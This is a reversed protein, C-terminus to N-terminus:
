KDLETIPDFVTCSRQITVIPPPFTTMSLLLLVSKPLSTLAFIALQGIKNVKPTIKAMCKLNSCVYLQLNCIIHLSINYRSHIYTCRCTCCIQTYLSYGFRYVWISYMYAPLHSIIINTALSVVARQDYRFDQRYDSRIFCVVTPLIPQNYLNIILDCDRQLTTLRYISIHWINIIQNTKQIM